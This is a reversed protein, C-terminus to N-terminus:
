WALRRREEWDTIGEETGTGQKRIANVKSKSFEIQYIFQSPGLNYYWVEDGSSVGEYKQGSKVLVTKTRWTDIRNKRVKQTIRVERFDPAGCAALVKQITDGIGV